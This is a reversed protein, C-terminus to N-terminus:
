NDTSCRAESVGKKVKKNQKNELEKVTFKQSNSIITQGNELTVIIKWTYTKSPDLRKQLVFQTEKETEFESILIEEDDSIYLHYKIAKSVKKWKFVFIEQNSSVAFELEKNEKCNRSNGRTSSFTPSSKPEKREQYQNSKKQVNTSKSLVQETKKQVPRVISLDSKLSSKQKEITQSENTVSLTENVFSNANIASIQVAEEMTSRNANQWVLFSFFLLIVVVSCSWILYLKLDNGFFYSSLLRGLRELLSDQSVENRDVVISWFKESTPLPLLKRCDSCMLLHRGVAEAEQSKLIGSTYAAIEKQTLHKATNM